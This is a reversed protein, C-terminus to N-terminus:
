PQGVRYSHQQIESRHNGRARHPTDWGELQAPYPRLSAPGQVAASRGGRGHFFQIVVGLQDGLDLLETQAKRVQWQGAFIGADKNSDSYGLMIPQFKHIARDAPAATSAAKLFHNSWWGLSSRTLPHDMFAQMIFSSRKLDDLTEFLPTVPLPCVLEGEIM